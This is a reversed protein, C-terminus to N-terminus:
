PFKRKQYHRRFDYQLVNAAKRQAAGVEPDMEAKKCTKLFENEDLATEPNQEFL